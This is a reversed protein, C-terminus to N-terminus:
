RPAAVWRKRVTTRSRRGGSACRALAQARANHSPLLANGAVLSFSFSDANLRTKAALARLRHRAALVLEVGAAGGGVVAIRRPGGETLARAELSQWKPAFVSVPKVAITHEIAGAIPELLPTIGVDISLLDYSLPPRGEILVRKNARDIGCMSGHIIRAGAFQALRVLDIHCADLAYHGAVFGPLMGSYPAALEKAILTLRIGAEPTMGFSKLVFVHAHGGGILVIDKSIPAAQM